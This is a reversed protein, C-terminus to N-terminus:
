NMVPLHKMLPYRNPVNHAVVAKTSSDRHKRRHYAIYDGANHFYSRINSCERCVLWSYNCIHYQLVVGWSYHPSPTASSPLISPGCSPCSWLNLRSVGLHIQLDDYTLSGSHSVLSMRVIIFIRNHMSNLCLGVSGYYKIVYRLRLLLV